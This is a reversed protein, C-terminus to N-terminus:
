RETKVPLELSTHVLILPPDLGVRSGDVKRFNDIFTRHESIDLTRLVRMPTDYGYKPEEKELIEIKIIQDFKQRFQYPRNAVLLFFALM